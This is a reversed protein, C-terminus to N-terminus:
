AGNQAYIERARRLILEETLAYREPGDIPPGIDESTDFAHSCAAALVAAAFEIRAVLTIGRAEIPAIAAILEKVQDFEEQGFPSALLEPIETNWGAPYPKGQRCREIIRYEEIAEEWERRAARPWNSKDGFGMRGTKRYAYAWEPPAGSKALAKLVEAQLKIPSLPTPEDCDPDFFLPDGPGMDRGFKKRFAEQQGEIARLMEPSLKVVDGRAEPRSKKKRKRSAPM